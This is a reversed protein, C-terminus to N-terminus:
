HSEAILKIHDLVRERIRHIIAGSVEPPALVTTSTTVVLLPPTAPAIREAAFFLPAALLAVVMAAAHRPPTPRQIQYGIIAGIGTFFIALPAAVMAISILGEFAVALALAGGLLAGTGTFFMALSAAMAICILGELAVALLLAGALLASLEAVWLCQGISRPGRYGLLQTALIGQCVPVAVFVGWGYDMFFGVGLEIGAIGFVSTLAVTMATSAFSGVPMVRDLLRQHWSSAPREAADPLAVLLVFFLLNVLPVFFIFVLWLPLQLARLRKITTSVGIWAFPIAAALLVSFYRNDASSLGLLDRQAGLPVFYGTLWDFGFLSTDHIRFGVVIAFDMVHKVVFLLAGIVAYTVRDISGTASFLPRLFQM